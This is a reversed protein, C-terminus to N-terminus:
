SFTPIYKAYAKELLPAWFEDPDKRNQCFVLTDKYWPLRDDIVVDNWEGFLWFRFHFIGSNKLVFLEFSEERNKSNNKSSVQINM